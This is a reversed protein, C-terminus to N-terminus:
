PIIEYAMVYPDRHVLWSSEHNMDALPKTSMAQWKHILWSGNRAEFFGGFFVFQYAMLQSSVVQFALEFSVVCYSM